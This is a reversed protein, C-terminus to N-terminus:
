RIYFFCYVIRMRCVYTHSALPQLLRSSRINLVCHKHIDVYTFTLKKIYFLLRNCCEKRGAWEWYRCRISHVLVEWLFYVSLFSFAWSIAIEKVLQHNSIPSTVVSSMSFTWIFNADIVFYWGLLVDYSGLIAWPIFYAM